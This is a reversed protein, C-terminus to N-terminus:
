RPQFKFLRAVLMGPFSTIQQNYMQVAQNYRMRETFIRNETGAIEYQLSTSLSKSRLQPNRNM